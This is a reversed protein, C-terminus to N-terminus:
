LHQFSIPAGLEFMVPGNTQFMVKRFILEHSAWQEFCGFFSLHTTQKQCRKKPPIQKISLNFTLLVIYSIFNLVYAVHQYSADVHIGSFYCIGVRSIYIYLQMLVFINNLQQKQPVMHLNFGLRTCMIITNIKIDNIGALTSASGPVVQSPM